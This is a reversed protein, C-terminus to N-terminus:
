KECVGNDRYLAQSFFVFSRLKMFVNACSGHQVKEVGVVDQWFTKPVKASTELESACFVNATFYKVSRVAWFSCEIWGSVRQLGAINVGGFPCCIHVESVAFGIKLTVTRCSLSHPLSQPQFIAPLSYGSSSPRGRGVVVSSPFLSIIFLM